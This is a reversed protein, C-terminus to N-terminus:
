SIQQADKARDLLNNILEGGYVKSAAQRIDSSASLTQISDSFVEQQDKKSASAQISNLLDTVEFRNKSLGLQNLYVSNVQNKISDSSEKMIERTTKKVSTAKALLNNYRKEFRDEWSCMPTTIIGLIGDTSILMRIIHKYIDNFINRTRAFDFGPLLSTTATTWKERFRESDRLKIASGTVEDIEILGKKLQFVSDFIFTNVTVWEKPKDSLFQDTQRMKKAWSRTDDLMSGRHSGYQEIVSKKALEIIAGIDKNLGDLYTKLLKIKKSYIDPDVYTLDGFFRELQDTSRNGISAIMRGDDKKVYSQKHM